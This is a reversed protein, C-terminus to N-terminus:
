IDRMNKLKTSIKDKIGSLVFEDVEAEAKAAVTVKAKPKNEENFKDDARDMSENFDVPMQAPIEDDILSLSKLMSINQDTVGILMSEGAVRVIMLQKRPGLAHHSLVKIQNNVATKKNNKSYWKSFFILGGSMVAIVFLSLMLKIYPSQSKAKKDAKLTSFAPVESEKVNQTNSSKVPSSMTQAPENAVFVKLLNKDALVKINEGSMSVPVTEDFNINSKILDPGEFVSEIGAIGKKGIHLSNKDTAMEANPFIVQLMKEHVNTQVMTPDFPESFEYVTMFQSNEEVTTVGKLLNLAHAHTYASFILLFVIILRFM